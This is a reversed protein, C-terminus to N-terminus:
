KNHISKEDQKEYKNKIQEKERMKQHDLQMVLIEALRDAVMNEIQEINLQLKKGRM